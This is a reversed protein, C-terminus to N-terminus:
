KNAEKAKQAPEAAQNKQKGGLDLNYKPALWRGSRDVAPKEIETQGNLVVAVTYEHGTQDDKVRYPM